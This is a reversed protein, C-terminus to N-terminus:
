AAIEQRSLLAHEIRQCAADFYRPEREIGVFRYGSLLAAIGTSGGGMYPDCVTAGPPPDLHSLCWRMLDVPKQTPHVRPAAAVGRREMRTEYGSAIMMGDWLHRYIRLPRDVGVNTWALEGCGQSKVKGNPLKDWALWRGRPLRDGFKHAGWLLVRDSAQLVPAPDFPQDDGHIVPYTRITTPAAGGTSVRRIRRRQINVKLAQGYPPDSAIADPRDLRPPVEASDGLILTARGIQVISM